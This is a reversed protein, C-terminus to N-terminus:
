MLILLRLHDFRMTWWTTSVDFIREFFLNHIKWYNCTKKFHIENELSFRENTQILSNKRFFFVFTWIKTTFYSTYFILFLIRLSHFSTNSLMIFKSRFTYEIKLARQTKVFCLEIQVITWLNLQVHFKKSM